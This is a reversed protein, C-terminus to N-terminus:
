HSECSRKNELSVCYQRMYTKPLKGLRFLHYEFNLASTLYVSEDYLVRVWNTFELESPGLYIVWPQGDVTIESQRGVGLDREVETTDQLINEKALFFTTEQGMHSFLGTMQYLKGSELLKLLENVIFGNTEKEEM